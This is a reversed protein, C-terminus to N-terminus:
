APTRRARPALERQIFAALLLAEARGDDKKRDLTVSPFLQKARLISYSKEKGMGTLMEGKWIGPLVETFPIEFATLMGRWLGYGEGFRFAGVIGQEPMSGVQEIACHVTLRKLHPTAYPSLLKAMGPMDFYTKFGRKRQVTLIPTAHAEAVPGHLM